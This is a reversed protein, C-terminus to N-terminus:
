RKDAQLEEFQLAIRDGGARRTVWAALEPAISAVRAGLGIALPAVTVEGRDREIARAVAEAVDAPRRTGISRPLTIATDAYM